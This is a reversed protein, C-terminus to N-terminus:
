FVVASPDFLQVCHGTQASQGLEGGPPHVGTGGEQTLTLFEVNTAEEPLGHGPQMTHRSESHGDSDHGGKGTPSFWKSLVM